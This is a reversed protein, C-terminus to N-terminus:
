KGFGEHVFPDCRELFSEKDFSQDKIKLVESLEQAIKWAVNFGDSCGCRAEYAGANMIRVLEDVDDVSLM